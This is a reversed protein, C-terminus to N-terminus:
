QNILAATTMKQLEEQRELQEIWAPPFAGIGLRAGLLAGLLTGLSDSDGPSNIAELLGGRVDNPHRSFVYVAAAIAEHAAWGRLRDLTVRPSVGRLAEHYAIGIMNATEPSYAEARVFMEPVIDAPAKQQLSLGVGVAMAACAALAIPDRHTLKSHAVAWAEAKALDHHFFLGFPYARMVSGCGGAKEGGAEYWARGADLARCGALCAAGPARHGGQPSHSWRIFRDALNKMTADLDLGSQRSDALARFVQEAMQTDDTYPAFSQGNADWFLVYDQVGTKGYRQEIGEWSLFETPHGLADGIAAGVVTGLYASSYDIRDIYM